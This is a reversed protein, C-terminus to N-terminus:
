FFRPPPRSFRTAVVPCLMAAQPAAFILRLVNPRNAFPNTRIFVALESVFRVICGVLARITLSAVLIALVVLAISFRHGAEPTEIAAFWATALAFILGPGPLFASLRQAVITGQSRGASILIAGSILAAMSACAAALSLDIVLEHASGGLTHGGGFSLLHALIAVPLGLALAGLFKRLTVTTLIRSRACPGRKLRQGIYPARGWTGM